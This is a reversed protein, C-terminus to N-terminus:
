LKSLMPRIRKRERANLNIMLSVLRKVTHDVITSTTLAVGEEAGETIMAKEMGEETKSRLDM